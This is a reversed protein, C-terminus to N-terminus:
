FTISDKVELCVCFFRGNTTRWCDPNLISQEEAVLSQDPWLSTESGPCLHVSSSLAVGNRTESERVTLDDNWLWLFDHLGRLKSLLLLSCKQTRHRSEKVSICLSSRLLSKSSTELKKQYIRIINVNKSEHNCNTIHIKDKKRWCNQNYNKTIM